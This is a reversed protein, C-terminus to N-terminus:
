FKASLDVPPLQNCAKAVEKPELAGTKFYVQELCTLGILTDILSQQLAIRWALSYAPKGGVISGAAKEYSKFLTFGPGSPGDAEEFRMQHRGYAIEVGTKTYVQFNWAVVSSNPGLHLQVIQHPGTIGKPFPVKPANTYDAPFKGCLTLKSVNVRIFLPNWSPWYKEEFAFPALVNYPVKVYMDGLSAPMDTSDNLMKFYTMNDCPTYPLDGMDFQQANVAVLLAFFLCVRLPNM